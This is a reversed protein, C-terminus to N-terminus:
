IEIESCRLLLTDRVRYAEAFSKLGETGWYKEAIKPDGVHCRLLMEFLKHTSLRSIRLESLTECSVTDLDLAVIESAPYVPFGCDYNDTYIIVFASSTIALMRHCQNVFRLREEKGRIGDGGLIYPRRCLCRKAQMLVAKSIRYNQLKVNLLLGLDAGIKKEIKQRFAYAEIKIGEIPGLENLFIHLREVFAGTIEPETEYRKSRFGSIIDNVVVQVTKSIQSIVPRPIM